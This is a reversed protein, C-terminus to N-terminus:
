HDFDLIQVLLAGPFTQGGIKLPILSVKCLFKLIMSCLTIVNLDKVHGLHGEPLLLLIKLLHKMVRTYNKILTLVMVQFRLMMGLVM